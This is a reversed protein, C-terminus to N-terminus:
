LEEYRFVRGALLELFRVPEHTRMCDCDQRRDRAQFRETMRFLANDSLRINCEPVGQAKTRFPGTRAGPTPLLSRFLTGGRRLTHRVTPFLKTIDPQEEATIQGIDGLHLLKGRQGLRGVLQTRDGAPEIDRLTLYPQALSSGFAVDFLHALLAPKGAVANDMERGM